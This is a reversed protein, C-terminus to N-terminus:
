NSDSEANLLAEVQELLANPVDDKTITGAKIMSAVDEATIRKLRYQLTLFRKKASM